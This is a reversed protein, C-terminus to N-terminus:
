ELFWGADGVSSFCGADSTGAPRSGLFAFAPLEGPAQGPCECSRKSPCCSGLDMMGWSGSGTRSRPLLAPNTHHWGLTYVRSPAPWSCWLRWAVLLPNNPFLDGRLDSPITTELWYWAPKGAIAEAPRYSVLFWWFCPITQHNGLIKLHQSQEGLDPFVVTTKFAPFVRGLQEFSFPNTGGCQACPVAFPSPIPYFPCIRWLLLLLKWWCYHSANIFASVEEQVRYELWYSNINRFRQPDLLYKWGWFWVAPNSFSEWLLAPAQCSTAAVEPEAIGVLNLSFSRKEERESFNFTGPNIEKQRLTDPILSILIM